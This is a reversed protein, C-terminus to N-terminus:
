PECRRLLLETASRSDGVALNILTQFDPDRRYDLFLIDFELASEDLEEILYEGSGQLASNRKLLRHRPIKDLFIRYVVPYFFVIDVEVCIKRLRRTMDGRTQADVGKKLGVRTQAIHKDYVDRDRWPEYLDRYISMPNSSKPNKSRYPYFTSAAYVFHKGGYFFRNLCRALFPQTSYLFKL